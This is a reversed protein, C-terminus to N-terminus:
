WRLSQDVDISDVHRITLLSLRFGELENGTLRKDGFKSM